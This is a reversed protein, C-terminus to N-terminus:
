NMSKALLRAARMALSMITIQPNVGLSCPIVSADMIYLNRVDHSELSFKVVSAKPDNGM